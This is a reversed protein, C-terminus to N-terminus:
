EQEPDQDGDQSPQVPPRPPMTPMPPLQVNYRITIPLMKERLNVEYANLVQVYSYLQDTAAVRGRLEAVERRLKSITAVDRLDKDVGGKWYMFLSINTVFSTCLLIIVTPVWAPVPRREAQAYDAIARVPRTSMLREWASARPKPLPVFEADGWEPVIRHTHGNGGDRTRRTATDDLDPPM